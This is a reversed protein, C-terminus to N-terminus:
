APQDVGAAMAIGLESYLAFGAYMRVRTIVENSGEKEGVRTVFIGNQKSAGIGAIGIKKSGDDLVGCYIDSRNAAPEGGTTTAIWDNQFIPVGRYAMIVGGGPLQMTEGIGAGGQARLLSLYRRVNISSMKFFDVQGDKSKVKDMLEDLIEFSFAQGATGVKQAAPVLQALGDFHTPTTGEDGNIMLDQYQRGISKAKGAIQIGEQDNTNSMTVMEFHDMEADGIIPVLKATAGVAKTPSKATIANASSGSGVGIVQSDGLSLERNYSAANGEIFHFPLVRYFQNTTVIAEIVGAIMPNQSLVQAEALTLTTM